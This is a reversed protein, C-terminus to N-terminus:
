PLFWQNALGASMGLRKVRSNIGLYKGEWGRKCGPQGYSIARASSDSASTQWSAEPFARVKRVFPVSIVGKGKRDLISIHYRSHFHATKCGRAFHWSVSLHQNQNHAWQVLALRLKGGSKNHSFYLGRKREAVAVWVETDTVNKIYDGSISMYTDELREISVIIHCDMYM